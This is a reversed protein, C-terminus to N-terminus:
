KGEYKQNIYKLAGETVEFKDGAYMLSGTGSTGLLIDYGSKKGFEKVGANIEKWIQENYDKSTRANGNEFSELMKQYRTLSLELGNRIESAESGKSREFRRKQMEIEVNLSDLAEKQKQKVADFQKELEKKKNFGEFLKYNDVYGISPTKNLTLVIAAVAVLMAISCFLLIVRQMNTNNM